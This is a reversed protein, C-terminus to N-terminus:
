PGLGKPIAFVDLTSTDGQAGVYTPGAKPWFTGPSMMGLDPLMASFIEGAPGNPRLHHPGLLDQDLDVPTGDEWLGFGSNIDLGCIPTSRARTLELRRRIHKM